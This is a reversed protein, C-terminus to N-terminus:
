KKMKRRTVIKNREVDQNNKRISKNHILKLNSFRKDSLIWNMNKLMEKKQYELSNKSWQEEDDKEKRKRKKKMWRKLNNKQKM